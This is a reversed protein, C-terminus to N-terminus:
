MKELLKSDIKSRRLENRTHKEDEGSTELTSICRKWENRTYKVQEIVEKDAAIYGGASGFSKTFTGMMVDIHKTPV